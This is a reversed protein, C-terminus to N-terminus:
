PHSPRMERYKYNPTYITLKTFIYTRANKFFNLIVFLEVFFNIQSLAKISAKGKLRYLRPKGEQKLRGIMSEHWTPTLFHTFLLSIKLFFQSLYHRQTLHCLM